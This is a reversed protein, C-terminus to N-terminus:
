NANIVIKDNKTLEGAKVYGRNETFVQHDETLKLRREQGFSDVIELEVIEANERTLCSAVIDAFEEKDEYINYTLAKFSEGNAMATVIRKIELDGQDTRVLTEGTVCPNLLWEHNEDRIGDLLKKIHKKAGERNFIGREGSKSEYLSLWEKMWIGIDPKETYAVSNNSLTRQSNTEWWNGSKAVRMREDSLNSLSIMASRRVGGCVVCDGIKCCLDHCELSTLKRGQANTFTRVFFHFLDDLVQPGSSRGGFTKLPAGAPRLKSLDWKPIQGIFLLNVLEKLSKAWGLKSDPVVITTDSDFFDESVEPLNNINQREVSFGVGSNHVVNGNELVYNNHKPISMDWYIESTKIARKKVIKM